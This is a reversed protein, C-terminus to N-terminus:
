APSVTPLWHSGDVCASRMIKRAITPIFPGKTSSRPSRSPRIPKDDDGNDTREELQRRTEGRLQSELADCRKGGANGAVSGPDTIDVMKVKLRKMAALAGLWVASAPCPM